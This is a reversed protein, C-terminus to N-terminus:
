QMQKALAMASQMAAEIGSTARPVFADGIVGLELDPEWLCDVKTKKLVKAYRWVHQHQYDIVLPTELLREADQIMKQTLEVYSAEDEISAINKSQLTMSTSQPFGSKSHNQIIWEPWTDASYIVDPSLSNFQMGNLGLYMMFCHSYEIDDLLTQFQPVLNIVQPAPQTMIVTDFPGFMQDDDMCLMWQAGRRELHIVKKRYHVPTKGLLWKVLGNIPGLGSYITKNSLNVWTKVGNKVCMFSPKWLALVSADLAPQIHELLARDEILFDQAGKDFCYANHRHSALRGGAGRAKDFVTIDVRNRMMHSFFAGSIGAGIVAIRKSM